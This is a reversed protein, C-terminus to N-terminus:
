EATRKSPEGLLTRKSPEGLLTRKSSEGLLTRKSPEGLLTRKSPEGLLTRQWFRHLSNYLHKHLTSAYHCGAFVAAFYPIFSGISLLFVTAASGITLGQSPNILSAGESFFNM